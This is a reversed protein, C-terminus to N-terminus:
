ESDPETETEEEPEEEPQPTELESGYETADDPNSPQSEPEPEVWHDTLARVADSHAIKLNDRASQQEESIPVSNILVEDLAKFQSTLMKMASWQTDTMPQASQYHKESDSQMEHLQEIDPM